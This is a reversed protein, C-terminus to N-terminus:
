RKAGEPTGKAWGAARLGACSYGVGRLRHGGARWQEIGQYVNPVGGAVLDAFDDRRVRQLRDRAALVGRLRRLGEGSGFLRQFFRAFQERRARPRVVQIENVADFIGREPRLCGRLQLGDGGGRAVQEVRKAFRDLRQALVLEGLHDSPATSHDLQAPLPCLHEHDSRSSEGNGTFQATEPVTRGLKGIFQWCM